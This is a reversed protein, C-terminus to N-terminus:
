KSKTKMFKKRGKMKKREKENRKEYKGIFSGLDEGKWQNVREARTRKEKKSTKHQQTNGLTNAISVCTREREKMDKGLHKLIFLSEKEREVRIELM